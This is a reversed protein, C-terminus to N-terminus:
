VAKKTVKIVGNSFVAGGTRTGYVAIVDGDAVSIDSVLLTMGAKLTEDASANALTRKCNADVVVGNKYVNIVLEATVDPALVGDVLYLVEYKSNSGGTPITYSASPMATASAGGASSSLADSAYYVENGLSCIKTMLTKLVTNLDDCPRAFVESGCVFKEGDFKIESTFDYDSEGCCNTNKKTGSGNTSGGCGCGM